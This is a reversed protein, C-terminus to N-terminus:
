VSNCLSSLVHPEGSVWRLLNRMTKGMTVGVPCEELTWSLCRPGWSPGEWIGPHQLPQQSLCRQEGEWPTELLVTQREEQSSEMDLPRTRTQLCKHVEEQMEQESVETSLAFPMALESETNAPVEWWCPYWSYSQSFWPSRWAVFSHRGQMCFMGVVLWSGLEWGTVCWAPLEHDEDAERDLISCRRWSGHSQTWFGTVSCVRKSTCCVGLPHRGCGSGNAAPLLLLIYTTWLLGPVWGSGHQQPPTDRGHHGARSGQCSGMICWQRPDLSWRRCAKRDRCFHGTNVIQKLWQIMDVRGAPVKILADRKSVKHAERPMKLNADGLIWLSSEQQSSTGRSSSYPTASRRCKPANIPDSSCLLLQNRESKKFNFTRLWKM